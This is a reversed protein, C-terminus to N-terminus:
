TPASLSFIHELIMAFLFSILEFVFVIMAAMHQETMTRRDPHSVTQPTTVPTPPTIEVQRTTFATSPSFNGILDGEECHRVAAVRLVYHTNPELNDVTCKTDAGQYVIIGNTSSTLLQLQYTCFIGPIQKAGTWEAQCSNDTVNLVKPAKLSPPSARSTQFTYVTSYPGQGSENSACIRFDLLTNEQLRNVKYSLGAGHYVPAFSKSKNSMEVTYFLNDKKTDGWKLKLFNHGTAVCELEPPSPPSKMTEVEVVECFPGEGIENIAQIRARYITEPMLDEICLEPINEETNYLVDDLEVNYSLIPSGNSLPETWSLYIASSLAQVNFGSITGPASAPTKCSVINSNPGHGAENSARVRFYYSSAPMLGQAIYKSSLGDYLESFSEDVDETSWQLQYSTIAAGNNMPEEWSLQCSFPSDCTASLNRPSDPPGAGSVVELPDSFPGAGVRNYARVQFLYPRGPLLDDVICSTEPGKYVQLTVNDPSTMDVEYEAVASGGDHEPHSWDLCVYSAEPKGRLKPLACKGPSVAATTVNNVDSYPSHGAATICAVRLKYTTGPLLNELFFENDAGTYVSEFGLGRDIELIYKNISSHRCDKPPDWTVRFCSAHIRGKPIPRGPCSLKDPLTCFTVTKSWPSSGEENSAMLRFKYETNGKLGSCIFHNDRGSYATLFGHRMNEDEIQLNFDDDFTRREWELHLRNIYAQKLIPPSPQSPINGSTFYCCIESFSSKGKENMAALRFRYGTAPSLKTVKYQKLPGTYIPSFNNRSYGEDCELIYTIKSNPSDCNSSWKLTLSNKTRACLRPPQPAEPEVTKTKFTIGKATNGRVDDVSAQICIYYETAPKLSTINCHHDMGSYVSKFKTEKTKECLMVEYMIESQQLTACTAPDLESTCPLEPPKWSVMVSYPSLETIVPPRLNSLYDSMIWSVEEDESANSGSASSGGIHYREDYGYLKKGRKNLLSNSQNPLMLKDRSRSELKRRFKYTSCQYSEDKQIYMQSPPPSADLEQPSEGNCHSAPHPLIGPINPPSLAPQMHSPPQPQFHPPGYTPAPYPYYQTMPASSAHSPSMSLALCITVCTKFVMVINVMHMLGQRTPKMEM